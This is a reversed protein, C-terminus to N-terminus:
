ADSRRAGLTALGVIWGVFLGYVAGEGAAQLAGVVSPDSRIITTLLGAFAGAFIYAAWGSFLQSVTGRVRALQSGPLLSLLAVAFIIVLLARLISALSDRLSEDADLDWAPWTLQHLFWGGANDPDANDQVWDVFPPSGFIAVLFIAVFVAIGVV